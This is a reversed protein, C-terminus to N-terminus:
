DDVDRRRPQRGRAPAVLNEGSRALDSLRDARVGFLGRGARPRRRGHHAVRGRHRTTSCTMASAVGWVLTHLALVAAISVAMLVTPLPLDAVDRLRDCLRRVAGRVARDLASFSTFASPRNHIELTTVLLTLAVAYTADFFAIARNYEPGHPPYRV